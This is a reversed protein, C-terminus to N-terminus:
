KMAAPSAANTNAMALLEPSLPGSLAALKRAALAIHLRKTESSSLSLGRQEAVLLKERSWFACMLGQSSHSNTGLLLHALEHAMADGLLQAFDLQRQMACDRVNDYFVSAFFGFDKGTTGMAVGFVEDRFHLRQAMSRPLVNLVLVLTTM